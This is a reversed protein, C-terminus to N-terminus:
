RLSQSIGLERAMGNTSVCNMMEREDLKNLSFEM